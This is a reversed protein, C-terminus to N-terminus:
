KVNATLCASSLIQDFVQQDAESANAYRLSANAILERWHKSDPLVGRSDTAIPRGADDVLERQTFSASGLFLENAPPDDM